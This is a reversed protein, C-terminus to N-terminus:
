ICEDTGIEIEIGIGIGRDDNNKKTNTGLEDDCSYVGDICQLFQNKDFGRNLDRTLMDSQQLTQMAPHFPNPRIICPEWVVDLALAVQLEEQSAPQCPTQRDNNMRVQTTTDTVCPACNGHDMFSCLLLEMSDDITQEYQSQKDMFRLWDVVSWDVQPQNTRNLYTPDVSNSRIGMNRNVDTCTTTTMTASMQVFDMSAIDLDYIDTDIFGHYSYQHQHQPVSLNAMTNTAKTLELQHKRSSSSPMTGHMLESDSYYGNKVLLSIPQQHAQDGPNYPCM